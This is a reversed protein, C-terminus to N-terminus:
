EKPMDWAQQRRELMEVKIMSVIDWNGYEAALESLERGYCDAKWLDVRSDRLFLKVIERQGSEIAEMVPTKGRRTSSNVDIDARSFLYEVGEKFGIKAAIHLATGNWDDVVDVLVDERSGLLHMIGTREHMVAYSFPTHKSGNNWVINPDAGGRILRVVLEENDQYIAQMLPPRNSAVENLNPDAPNEFINSLLLKVVTVNGREIAYHLATKGYRDPKNADCERRLLLLRCIDLSGSASAYHLPLSGHVTQRSLDAGHALLEEVTNLCDKQCAIHLPTRGLIDSSDIALRTSTPDRVIDPGITPELSSGGVTYADLCHHLRTRGLCDLQKDIAEIDGLEQSRAASLEDPIFLPCRKSFSPLHEHISLDKLITHIRTGLEGCKTEFQDLESLIDENRRSDRNSETLISRCLKKLRGMWAMFQIDSDGFPDFDDLTALKGGDM